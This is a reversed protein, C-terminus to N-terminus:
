APASAWPNVGTGPVRAQPIGGVDSSLYSWFTGYSGVIERVAEPVSNLHTSPFIPQRIVLKTSVWFFAVSIVFPIPAFLIERIARSRKFRGDVWLRESYVTLILILNLLIFLSILAIKPAYTALALFYFLSSFILRREARELKVWALGGFLVLTDGVVFSIHDAIFSYYDLFAPYLYLIGAVLFVQLSHELGIMRALIIGNLAQLISAGFMQLPVVGSGGQMMIILDALWRGEGTTKFSPYGYLWSNPFTHDALVTAFFLYSYAIIQLLLLGVFLFRYRAFENTARRLLTAVSDAVVVLPSLFAM